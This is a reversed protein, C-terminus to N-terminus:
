GAEGLVNQSLAYLAIQTRHNLNLKTLISSIYNKVTSYSLRLESAIEPNSFGRAVLSAVQQERPSLALPDFSPAAARTSGRSGASTDASSALERIKLRLEAFPSQKRLVTHGRLRELIENCNVPPSETGYLVRGNHIRPGEVGSVPCVACRCDLLVIPRTGPSIQPLRDILAFDRSLWPSLSIIVVCPRVGGIERLANDPDTWGGVCALGGEANVLSAIGELFLPNPVVVGVTVTSRDEGPVAHHVDQDTVILSSDAVSYGAGESIRKPPRRNAQINLQRSLIRLDEMM